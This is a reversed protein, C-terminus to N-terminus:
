LKGGLDKRLESGIESFKSYEKKLRRYMRVTDDSKLQMAERNEVRVANGVGDIVLVERTRGTVALETKEVEKKNVAILKRLARAAKGNM